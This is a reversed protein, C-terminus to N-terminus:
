EFHSGLVVSQLAQGVGELLRGSEYRCLSLDFLSGRAVAFYVV